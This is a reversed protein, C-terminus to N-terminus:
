SPSASPGLAGSTGGGIVDVLSGASVARAGGACTGVCVSGVGLGVTVVGAADASGIAAFGFGCGAFLCVESGTSPRQSDKSLPHTM